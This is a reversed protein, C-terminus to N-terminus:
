RAHALWGGVMRGAEDLRGALHEFGRGDLHRREYALRLLLRLKVLALDVRELAAVRRPGRLFRAEVLAELVDLALGDIRQALTFRVTKPFKVTRDLLEGLVVEWLALLPPVEPAARRPPEDAPM